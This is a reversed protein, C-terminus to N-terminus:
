FRGGKGGGAWALASVRACLGLTGRELAWLIVFDRLTHVLLLWLLLTWGPFSLGPSLRSSLLM